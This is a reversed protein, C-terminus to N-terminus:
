PLSKVFAQAPQPPFALATVRLTRCGDKVALAHFGKVAGALRDSKVGAFPNIAPLAV